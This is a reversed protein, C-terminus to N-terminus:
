YRYHEPKFPGKPDTDLYEAQGDSLKTLKAGLASNDAIIGDRSFLCNVIVADEDGRPRPDWFFGAHADCHNFETSFFLNWEKSDTQSM